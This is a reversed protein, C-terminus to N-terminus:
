CCCCSSCCLLFYVRLARRARPYFTWAGYGSVEHKFLIIKLKMIIYKGAKYTTTLHGGGFYTSCLYQRKASVITYTRHLPATCSVIWVMNFVKEFAVGNIFIM